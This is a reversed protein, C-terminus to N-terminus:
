IERSYQSKWIRTDKILLIIKAQINHLVKDLENHKDNRGKDLQTLNSVTKAAEHLPSFAADLSETVEKRLTKVMDSHVNLQGRNVNTLSDLSSVIQKARNKLREMCIEVRSINVTERESESIAPASSAAGLTELFEEGKDLIRDSELVLADWETEADDKDSQPIREDAM